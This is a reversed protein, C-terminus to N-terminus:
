RGPVTITISGTMLGVATARDVYGTAILGKAEQYSVIANRTNGDIVGDLRGPNYGLDRLRLELSQARVGSLRLGAEEARSQAVQADSIQPANLEEIRARAQPAFVGSPYAALYEQYGAVIDESQAISWAARDAAEAAGRRQDDIESLRAKAINAFLGDPYRALYARFGPEDGVGGTEGWYSRDLADAQARARAEEAEVEAQRRAAQADLLNIQERSLYSTQPFGNSQQWNTIAGRSGPGFIGDVGRTNYNLLTLQSQVARRDNRTLALADEILRAARNPEALIAEIQQEADDVFRGSPYRAVYNRYAVVTDAATTRDWLAAEANLDTTTRGVPTPAPTEVIVESPMLVWDAPLYGDVFLSPNARLRQGILAEPETLENSLVTAAVQPTTRILTVGQPIDVAGIGSSLGSDEMDLDDPDAAGLMMVAQGPRAGLVQLVSDLSLGADDVSFLDPDAAESTLLWTRAGDTVFHGSLAVVLRDADQAGAQFAAALDKAALVRGNARSFVDFGLAEFRDTANLLDDARNVRDLQEYREMGLVLAVDQAFVPRPLMLATTLLLARM